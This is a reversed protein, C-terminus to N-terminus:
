LRYRRGQRPRGYLDGHQRQGTYARSSTTLVGAHDKRSVAYGDIVVTEAIVSSAPSQTKVTRRAPAAYETWQWPKM